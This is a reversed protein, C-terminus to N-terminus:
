RQKAMDWIARAYEQAEDTTMGTSPDYLHELRKPYVM